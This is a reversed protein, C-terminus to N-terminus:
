QYKFVATNNKHLKNVYIIFYPTGILINPLITYFVHKTGIYYHIFAYITLVIAYPIFASVVFKYPAPVIKYTFEILGAVLYGGIFSNAAQTLSSLLVNDAGYNIYFTLIGYVLASLIGTILMRSQSKM